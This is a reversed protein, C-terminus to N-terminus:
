VLTYFGDQFAPLGVAYGKKFYPDIGQMLFETDTDRSQGM